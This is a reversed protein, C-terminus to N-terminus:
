VQRSAAKMIISSTQNASPSKLALKEDKQMVDDTEVDEEDGEDCDDGDFDDGQKETLMRYKKQLYLVVKYIGIVVFSDIYIFCAYLSPYFLM